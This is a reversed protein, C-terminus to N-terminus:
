RYRKKNKSNIRSLCKDSHYKLRISDKGSKKVKNSVAYIDEDDKKVEDLMSQYQGLRSSITGDMSKYSYKDWSNSTSSNNSLSKQADEWNAEYQRGRTTNPIDMELWAPDNIVAKGPYHKIKM